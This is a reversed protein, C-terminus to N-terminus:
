RPEPGREIVVLPIERDGATRQHDVFFPFSGVLEAWLATREDGVATRATGTFTEGPLEVTVAPHAGLNRYWGPHRESGNNSAIVMVGDPRPVFMMPSTRTQGTRAGTTTLLLMSSGSFPPGLKGDNARFEDIVTVNYALRDDDHTDTM